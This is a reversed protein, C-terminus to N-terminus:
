DVRCPELDNTTGASGAVAFNLEIETRNGARGMQDVDLVDLHQICRGVIEEEGGDVHLEPRLLAAGTRSQEREVLWKRKWVTPRDPCTEIKKVEEGGIAIRRRGDTAEQRDVVARDVEGDIHLIRVEVERSDDDVGPWDDIRSVVQLHPRRVLALDE